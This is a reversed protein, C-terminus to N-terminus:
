SLGFYNRFDFKNMFNSYIYDSELSQYTEGMISIGDRLRYVYFESRLKLKCTELIGEYYDLFIYSEM